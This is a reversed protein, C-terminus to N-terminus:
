DIGCAAMESAIQGTRTIEIRRERTGNENQLCLVRDLWDGNVPALYGRNDFSVTTNGSSLAVGINAACRMVGADCAPPPDEPASGPPLRVDGTWSLPGATFEAEVTANRRIAESKAFHLMAILENNQAALRSNILLQQFGPVGVTAIIALVAITVLLELLTFGSPRNRASM